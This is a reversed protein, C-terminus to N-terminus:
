NNMKEQSAKYENKKLKRSRNFKGRKSRKKEYSKSWNKSLLSM